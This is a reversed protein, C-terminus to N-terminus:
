LLNQLEMPKLINWQFQQYQKFRNLLMYLKMAPSLLVGKRQYVYLLSLQLPTWRSLHIDMPVHIAIDGHPPMFHAMLVDIHMQLIILVVFHLIHDCCLQEEVIDTSPMLNQTPMLNRTALSPQWWSFACPSCNRSNYFLYMKSTTLSILRDDEM